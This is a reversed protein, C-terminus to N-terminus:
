LWGPGRLPGSCSGAAGLGRPRAQHERRRPLEGEAPLMVRGLEVNFDPAYFVLDRKEPSDIQM